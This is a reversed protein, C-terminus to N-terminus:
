AVPIQRGTDGAAQDTWFRREAEHPADVPESTAGLLM